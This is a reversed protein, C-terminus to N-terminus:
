PLTYKKPTKPYDTAFWGEGRLTFGCRSVLRKATQQHCSPCETLAPEVICQEAEWEHKCTQCEYEYTPM